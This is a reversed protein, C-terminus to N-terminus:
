RKHLKREIATVFALKENAKMTQESILKQCLDHIQRTRNAVEPLELKLLYGRLKEIKTLLQKIADSKKILDIASKIKEAIIQVKARSYRLRNGDVIAQHVASLSIVLQQVIEKFLIAAQGFTDEPGHMQIQELPQIVSIKITNITHAFGNIHSQIPKTNRKDKFNAFQIKATSVIKEITNSINQFFQIQQETPKATMSISLGICFLGAMIKMNNFKM